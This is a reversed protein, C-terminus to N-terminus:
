MSWCHQSTILAQRTTTRPCSNSRRKSYLSTIYMKSKWTPSAVPGSAASRLPMRCWLPTLAQFSQKLPSLTTRVDVMNRSCLLALIQSLVPTSGEAAFALRAFNLASLVAATIDKDPGFAVNDFSLVRAKGELIDSILEHTEM